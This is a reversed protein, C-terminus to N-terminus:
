CSVPALSGNRTRGAPSQVIPWNRVFYFHSAGGTLSAGHLPVCLCLQNVAGFFISAVNRADILV